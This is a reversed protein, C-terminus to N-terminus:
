QYTSVHADIRCRIAQLRLSHEADCVHPHVLALSELESSLVFLAAFTAAGIGDLSTSFVSLYITQVTVHSDWLAPQPTISGICYCCRGNCEDHHM